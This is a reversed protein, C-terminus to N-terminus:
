NGQRVKAVAAHRRRPFEAGPALRVLATYVGSRPERYLLKITVGPVSPHPQWQSADPRVITIGPAVVTRLPKDNVPRDHVATPPPTGM